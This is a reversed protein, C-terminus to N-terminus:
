ETLRYDTPKDGLGYCGDPLDKIELETMLRPKFRFDRNM